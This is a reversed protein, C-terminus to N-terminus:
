SYRDARAEREQEVMATEYKVAAQVDSLAQAFGESGSMVRSGEKLFESELYVLAARLGGFRRNAIESVINQPLVELLISRFFKDRRWDVFGGNKASEHVLYAYRAYTRSITSFILWLRAGVFLRESWLEEHHAGLDKLISDEKYKEMIQWVLAPDRSKLGREIEEALLISDLLIIKSYRDNFSLVTGWLREVSVIMKSRLEPQAASLFNVSTGVTSYSAQLTAKIEELRKENRHELHREIGKCVVSPIARILITWVSVVLASVLLSSTWNTVIM